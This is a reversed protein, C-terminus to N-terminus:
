TQRHQVYRTGPGLFQDLTSVCSRCPSYFVVQPRAQLHQYTRKTKGDKLNCTCIHRHMHAYDVHLVSADSGRPSFNCAIHTEQHPHQSSFEQVQTTVGARSTSQSPHLARLGGADGGLGAVGGGRWAATGGAPELLFREPRRRWGLASASFSASSPRAPRSAGGAGREGAPAAALPPAAAPVGRRRGPVVVSAPWRGGRRRSGGGARGAGAAHLPRARSRRAAARARPEERRGRERARM